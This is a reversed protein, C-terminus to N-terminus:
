AMAAWLSENHRGEPSNLVEYRDWDSPHDEHEIIGPLEVPAFDYELNEYTTKIGRMSRMWKALILDPKQVTWYCDPLKGWNARLWDSRFWFIERGVDDNTYCVVDKGAELGKLLLETVKPRHDHRAYIADDPHTAMARRHRDTDPKYTNIVVAISDAKRALQRRTARLVPSLDAGLESNRGIVEDYVCQDTTGERLKM